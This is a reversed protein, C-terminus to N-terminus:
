ELVYDDDIWRYTEYGKFGEACSPDCDNILIVIEVAGDNDVDEVWGGYFRDGDNPISDFTEFGKTNPRLVTVGDYRGPNYVVFLNGTEDQPTEAPALRYLGETHYRWRIVDRSDIAIISGDRRNGGADPSAIATVLISRGWTPHDFIVQGTVECSYACAGPPLSSRDYDPFAHGHGRQPDIVSEPTFTGDFTGIVIDAAEVATAILATMDADSAARPEPEGSQTWNETFMWEGREVDYWVTDTAPYLAPAGLSASLSTPTIHHHQDDTLADVVSDASLEGAVLTSEETFRFDVTVTAVLADGVPATATMRLWNTEVEGAEDEFPETERRITLEASGTVLYGDDKPGYTMTLAGGFEEMSAVAEAQGQVALDALRAGLATTAQVVDNEEPAATQIEGSISRPSSIAEPSRGDPESQPSHQEPEAQPSCAVLLATFALAGILQSERTRSARGQAAPLTNM